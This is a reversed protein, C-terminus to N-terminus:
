SLTLLSRVPPCHKIGILFSVMEVSLVAWGVDVDVRGVGSERSGM